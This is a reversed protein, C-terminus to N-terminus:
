NSLTYRVFQDTSKSESDDNEGEIYVERFLSQVDSVRTVIKSCANFDSGYRQFQDKRARLQDESYIFDYVIPEELFFETNM